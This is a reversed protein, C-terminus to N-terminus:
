ALLANLKESILAQQTFGVVMDVPKGDKFFVMTPIGQIRYRTASAPNEDVNLKAIKARGDFEEALKELVPAMMRCPGCWPAWFDVLTVGNAVEQDFTKDTIDVPMRRVVEM